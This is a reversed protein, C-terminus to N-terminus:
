TFWAQRGCGGAFSVCLPAPSGHPEPTPFDRQDIRGFPLTGHMTRAGAVSSHGFLVQKALNIVGQEWGVRVGCSNLSAMASYMASPLPRHGAISM